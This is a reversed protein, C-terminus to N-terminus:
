EKELRSFYSVIVTVAAVLLLFLVSVLGSGSIDLVTSMPQSSVVSWNLVKSKQSSFLSYRGLRDYGKQQGADVKWLDYSADAETVLEGIADIEPYVIWKGQNDIVTITQGISSVAIQQMRESLYDASLGVVAVGMISGTNIDIVPVAVILAKNISDGLPEVQQSIYTSKKIVVDSFFTEDSWNEKLIVDSYPYVAMISGSLDLVSVSDFNRNNKFVAKLFSEVSATKKSVFSDVFISNQTLGELTSVADDIQSELTIRTLNTKEGLSKVGNSILLNQVSGVILIVLSFAMLLTGFMKFVISRNTDYRRKFQEWFPLIMGIIGAMLVFLSRSWYGTSSYYVSLLVLLMGSVGLVAKLFKKSWLYGYLTSVVVVVILLSFIYSAGDIVRYVVSSLFSLGSDNPYFRFILATGFLLGQIYFMYATSSLVGFLAEILIILSFLGNILFGDIDRTNLQISALGFYTGVLLFRFINNLNKFLPINEVLMDALILGVGGCLLSLQIPTFWVSYRGILLSDLQKTYLFMSVGLIVSSLAVFWDFLKPLGVREQLWLIITRIPKDSGLDALSAGFPPKKDFDYAFGEPDKAKDEKQVVDPTTDRALFRNIEEESIRFKGKGIRSSRIEGGKLFGYISNKSYGLLKAAENVSYTKKM